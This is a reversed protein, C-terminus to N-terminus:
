MAQTPSSQHRNFLWYTVFAIVQLYITQFVDSYPRLDFMHMTLSWILYVASLVNVVVMVRCFNLIAAERDQGTTPQYKRIFLQAIAGYFTNTGLIALLNWLGAFGDFPRSYHVYLVVFAYVSWVIALALWQVPKIYDFLSRPKLSATKINPQNMAKVQESFRKSVYSLWFYPTYQLLFFLMIVSQSDWSLFEDYGQSKTVLVLYIGLMAVIANLLQFFRAQKILHDPTKPYLEPYQEVPHRNITRKIQHVVLLPILVSIIIIQSIFTIHMLEIHNM